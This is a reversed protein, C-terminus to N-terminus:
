QIAALCCSHGSYTMALDVIYPRRFPGASRTFLRGARRRVSGAMANRVATGSRLLAKADVVVTKHKPGLVAIVVCSSINDGLDEAKRRGGAV